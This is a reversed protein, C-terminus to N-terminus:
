IDVINGKARVRRAGYVRLRERVLPVMLLLGVIDTLFGPTLLLAGGFLVMAGHALEVAPFQGARVAATTRRVVATGQRTVLYAGIAATALVIGLTPWLGIRNGVTIFLGIEAVPVAIFALFLYPM